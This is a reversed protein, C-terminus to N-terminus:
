NLLRHETELARRQRDRLLGLSFVGELNGLSAGKRLSKGMELARRQRDRLLGLSFAGELNGLSAGKRLSKGM